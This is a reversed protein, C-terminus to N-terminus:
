KKDVIIREERNAIEWATAFILKVRKTMVEFNIKEVDDTPTHYDDHMGSTYFIVPVGKEAFKIQDSRYYLQEPHNKDNYTYDIKLEPFFTKAADKSINHLETSLYDAGITYIYDVSDKHPEDIRGVMDINLCVVTSDMAFVPNKAYFDSGLLGREEGTFAIFLVSRRPGHGEKKAQAFAEAM